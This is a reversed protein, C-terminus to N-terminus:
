DYNITRERLIWETAANAPASRASRIITPPRM